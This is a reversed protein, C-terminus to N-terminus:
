YYLMDSSQNPKFIRGRRTIARPPSLHEDSTDALQRTTSSQVKDHKQQLTTIETPIGLESDLEATKEPIIFPGQVTHQDVIELAQKTAKYRITPSMKDPSSELNRPEKQINQQTSEATKDPVHSTTKRLQTDKQM